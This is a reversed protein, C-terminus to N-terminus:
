SVRITLSEATASGPPRPSRPASSARPRRRARGALATSREGRARARRRRVALSRGRGRGRGWRAADRADASEPGRGPGGRVLRAATAHLGGTVDRGLDRDAQSRARDRRSRLAKRLRREDAAGRTVHRAAGAARGALGRGRARGRRGRRMSGATTSCITATSRSSCRGRIPSPRRGAVARPTWCELWAELPMRMFGLPLGTAPDLEPDADFRDMGDDHRAAALCVQERPELEGFRANGWARAIQGSIRAHESQPICLVGPSDSDDRVVM